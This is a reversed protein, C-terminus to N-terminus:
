GHRLSRDYHSDNLTGLADFDIRDLEQIIGWFVVRPFRRPM